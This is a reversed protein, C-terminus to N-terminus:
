RMDEEKRTQKNTTPKKWGFFSSFVLVVNIKRTKTASGYYVKLRDVGKKQRSLEATVWSFLFLTVSSYFIKVM